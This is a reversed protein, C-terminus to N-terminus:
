KNDFYFLFSGLFPVKISIVGQEDVFGLFRSFNQASM